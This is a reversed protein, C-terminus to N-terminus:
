INEIFGILFWIIHMDYKGPIMNDGKYWMNVKTVIIRFSSIWTREQNYRLDTVRNETMLLTYILVLTTSSSKLTIYFVNAKHGAIRALINFRWM